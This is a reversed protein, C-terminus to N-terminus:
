EKTAIIAKLDGLTESFVVASVQDFRLVRPDDPSPENCVYSGREVSESKVFYAAGLEIIEMPDCGVWFNETPLIVEVGAGPYLKYYSSIGGADVVSGRAWGRRESRSRFTGASLNRGKTVAIERRNGHLPDPLEVPRDIQPFPPKVKFRALHARWVNLAANEMELPHAMGIKADTEPLEELAGSADALLGNPYRRFTRLLAGNEDYVGWVLSSAFSRLLPHNEFLERWRGVPWRRQRVLTMELRATQGKVAERLLKVLTKVETKISEPASAPLAKWSKDTIPDFWTLKFDAGLEASVGDGEWDFRRIGDADFGFDPVVLDGLEDTTIGRATAAANFAEACAKGVNKFKSRYRNSLTDLVMLPENGPLLSIAQAAYEALKHRSNECWDNIRSLLLTIIRNDGLLGALALAWRDSAAQESSLFNGLLTVALTASTTRNVQRLLPAIEPAPELTKHKAQKTIVFALEDRTMLSGDEYSPLPLEELNWWAASPVRLRDSQKLISKRLEELSAEPRSSGEGAPLADRFGKLALHLASRVKESKESEIAATLIDGVGPDKVRGLVALAGLKEDSKGASLLSAAQDVLPDENLKLLGDAAAGRLKVSSSGLLRWLTASVRPSLPSAADRAGLWEVFMEWLTASDDPSRGDIWDLVVEEVGAPAPCAALLQKLAATEMWASGGERFCGFFARGGREWEKIAHDIVEPFLYMYGKMKGSRVVEAMRELVGDPERELLWQFAHSGNLAEPEKAAETVESELGGRLSQLGHLLQYRTIAHSARRAASLGLADFRDTLSIIRLWIPVNPGASQKHWQEIAGPRFRIVADLFRSTGGAEDIAAVLGRDDAEFIWAELPSAFAPQASDAGTGALGWNREGSSDSKVVMPALVERRRSDQEALSVLVQEIGARSSTWSHGLAELLWGTPSYTLQGGRGPSRLGFRVLRGAAEGWVAENALLEWVPKSTQRWTGVPIGKLLSENGTRVFELAMSAQVADDSKEPAHAAAELCQLIAPNM